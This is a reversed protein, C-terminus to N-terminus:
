AAVTEPKPLPAENWVMRMAVCTIEFGHLKEAQVWCADDTSKHVTHKHALQASATSAAALDRPHAAAALALELPTPGRYLGSSGLLLLAHHEESLLIYEM